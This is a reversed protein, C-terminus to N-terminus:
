PQRLHFGLVVFFFRRTECDIGGKGAGGVSVVGAAAIAPGTARHEFAPLYRFLRGDPDREPSVTSAEIRTFVFQVGKVRDFLAKVGAADRVELLSSSLPDRAYDVPMRGFDLEVRDEVFLGTLATADGANLAAFLRHTLAVALGPECTAPLPYSADPVVTRAEPQGSAVTAPASFATAPADTSHARSCASAIVSM